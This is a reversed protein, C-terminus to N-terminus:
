PMRGSVLAQRAGSVTGRGVPSVECIDRMPGSVTVNTFDRSCPRTM